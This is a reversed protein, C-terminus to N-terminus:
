LEQFVGECVSVCALVGWVSERGLVFVCERECM